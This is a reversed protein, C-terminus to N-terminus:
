DVRETVSTETQLDNTGCPSRSVAPEGPVWRALVPISVVLFVTTLWGLIIYGHSASAAYVKGMALLGVATALYTLFNRLAVLRGLLREEVIRTTIAHFASYRGAAVFGVGGFLVVVAALSGGLYPMTCTMVALALTMAVLFPKKGLHDCVFGGLPAGLLAPLGGAAFVIGRQRTDLSFQTLLWDGFYFTMAVVGISFLMQFISLGWFGKNCLISEGGTDMARSEHSPASPLPAKPIFWATLLFGLAGLTSFSILLLTLSTRDAIQTVAWPGLSVGAFYATGIWGLTKGRQQYAVARGICATLALSTAASGAGVLARGSVLWSLNPAMASCLEGTAFLGMGLLLVFRSGMQDALFGAPLTIMAAGIQYSAAIWGAHAIGIQVKNLFDPLLPPVLYLDCVTVL